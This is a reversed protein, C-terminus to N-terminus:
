VNFFLLLFFINFVYLLLINIIVKVSFFLLLFKVKFKVFLIIFCFNWGVVGVKKFVLFFFVLFIIDYKKSDIFFLVFFIDYVIDEDFWKDFILLFIVSFKDLSLVDLLDIM